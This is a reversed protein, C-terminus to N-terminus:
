FESDKEKEGQCGWDRLNRRFNLNRWNRKRIKKMKKIKKIKNNEKEKFFEFCCGVDSALSM